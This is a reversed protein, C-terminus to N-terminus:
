MFGDDMCDTILVHGMEAELFTLTIRDRTIKSANPTLKDGHQNKVVLMARDLRIPNTFGWINSPYEQVHTAHM